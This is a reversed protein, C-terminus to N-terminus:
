VNETGFIGIPANGIRIKLQRRYHKLPHLEKKDSGVQRPPIWENSAVIRGSNIPRELLSGYYVRHYSILETQPIKDIELEFDGRLKEAVWDWLISHGIIRRSFEM